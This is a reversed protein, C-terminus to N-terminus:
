RKGRKRRLDAQIRTLIGPDHFNCWLSPRFVKAVPALSSHRQQAKVTKKTTGATGDGGYGALERGRLWKM